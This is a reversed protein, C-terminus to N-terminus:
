LVTLEVYCGEPLNKPIIHEGLGKWEFTYRRIIPMHNEDLYDEADYDLYKWNSNKFLNLVAKKADITKLESVYVNIIM